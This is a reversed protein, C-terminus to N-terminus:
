GQVAARATLVSPECFYVPMDTADTLAAHHEKKSGWEYPLAQIFTKLHRGFSVLAHAATGIASSNRAGKIFERYITEHSACQSLGDRHIRKLRGASQEPSFAPAFQLARLPGAALGAHPGHKRRGMTGATRRRTALQQAAAAVYSKGASLNRGLERSITSKSRDLQRAIEVPKVDQSHLLSIQKREEISLTIFHRFM